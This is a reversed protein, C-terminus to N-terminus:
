KKEVEAVAKHPVVPIPDHKYIDVTYFVINIPWIQLNKIDLHCTVCSVRCTANATPPSINRLLRKHLRSCKGM